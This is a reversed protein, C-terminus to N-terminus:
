GSTLRLLYLNFGLFRLIVKTLKEVIENNERINDYFEQNLIANAEMTKNAVDNLRKMASKVQEAAEAGSM